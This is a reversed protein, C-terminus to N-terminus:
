MEHSLLYKKCINLISLVDVKLNAVGLQKTRKFEARPNLIFPFVDSFVSKVMMILGKVNANEKKM